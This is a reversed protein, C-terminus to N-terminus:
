GNEGAFDITMPIAIRKSTLRGRLEKDGMQSMRVGLSHPICSAVLREDVEELM